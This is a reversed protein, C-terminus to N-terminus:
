LDIYANEKAEDERKEKEKILVLVKWLRQYFGTPM